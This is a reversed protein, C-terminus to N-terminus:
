EAAPVSDDSADAAEPELVGVRAPRLVREGLKYGSSYVQGATPESVEASYGHTLAEHLQPDFPDGPEAFQVLGLKAVIAELAEGVSKFGGELENHARARGIDDLVPLLNTLVGALAIEQTAVRDRDVRRRYNAYEAQLRQLDATREALEASFDSALFTDDGAPPVTGAPVTGEVPIDTVDVVPQRLEGTVPDIRRKDRVVPEGLDEYPGSM